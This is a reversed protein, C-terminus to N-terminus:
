ASPGRTVRWQDGAFELRYVATGDILRFTWAGFAPRGRGTTAWGGRLSGPEVRRVADPGFHEAAFRGAADLPLLRRDASRWLVSSPASETTM